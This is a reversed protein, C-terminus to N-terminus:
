VMSGGHGLFLTGSTNNLSFSFGLDGGTQAFYIYSQPPMALCSSTRYRKAVTPFATGIELDKLDVANAAYVEFWEKGTDPGNPDPLIETIVLDGIAPADLARPDNGDLCMGPAPC